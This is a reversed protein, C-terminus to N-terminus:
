KKADLVSFITSNSMQAAVEEVTRMPHHPRQIATNLDRPDICIRINNSDKKHAAVMSSVWESPKSIPTIVGLDTMRQFEKKVKDQMAVPIRRAPRIVPPITPDIKMSYTVPLRGVENKFLDAYKSLIRDTFEDQSSTNLQHVEKNLSLLGMRLCDPLGLLPQASSKIVYFLLNYTQSALYCPLTVTGLTHLENGGYAILKTTNSVNLEKGKRLHQFTELDMVNCKTHTSITNMGGPTTGSKERSIHCM